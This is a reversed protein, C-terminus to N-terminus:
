RIAPEFEIGNGIGAVTQLPGPPVARWTVRENREDEMNSTAIRVKRTSYNISTSVMEGTNRQLDQKDFGILEFRNNQWRFTYTRAGTGWGGASLFLSMTIKMVGREIKVGGDELFDSAVPNDPRPILTHNELALRYGGAPQAFIVALIRPNSDYPDPGLGQTNAVINRRNACKLVIALDPRGDANLDGTATSELRWGAPVFAAANAGQAALAPYTVQPYAIDARSATALLAFGAAALLATLRM